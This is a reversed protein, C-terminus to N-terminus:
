RNIEFGMTIGNTFLLDWKNNNTIAMSPLVYDIRQAARSVGGAVMATYGVKIAAAQTINYAAEVRLEGLPAFEIDTQAHTFTTTILGQPANQLPNNLTTIPAQGLVGTQLLTITPNTVINSGLFGSLQTNEVDAAATFRFESSFTWRERQHTYRLGIEPGVMDNEVRSDWQSADLSGGSAEVDFADRFQLFRVGCMLEWVGGHAHTPYRYVKLLEVGTLSSTNQAALAPIAPIATTVGNITQTLTPLFVIPLPVRDGNPFLGTDGPGAQNLVTGGIVPNYQNVGPGTPTVGGGTGGSAVLNPLARGFTGNNNLDADHGPFALSQLYGTDLGLPDGFAVQTPTFNTLRSIQPNTKLVTVMWGCDDDTMYGIEFRNGWRFLANIFSTDADSHIDIDQIPSDSSGSLNIFQNANPDGITTRNPPHINWFLREYSFWPGVNPRPYTGYQSSDFPAFLQVDSVNGFDIPGFPQFLNNQNEGLTRQESPEQNQPPTQAQLAAAGGFWVALGILWSRTRYKLM